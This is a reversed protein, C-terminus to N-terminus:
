PVLSSPVAVDSSAGFKTFSQKYDACQPVYWNQESARYISVETKGDGNYDDPVLADTNTGWQRYTATGSASNLIYWISNSPRFTAFDTKGDGDYDAPRRFRLTRAVFPKKASQARHL